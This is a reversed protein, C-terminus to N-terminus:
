QSRQLSTTCLLTSRERCASSWRSSAPEGALWLRSLEEIGSESVPLVLLVELESGEREGGDAYKEAAREECPESFDCSLPEKHEADGSSHPRRMNRAAIM